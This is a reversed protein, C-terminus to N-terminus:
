RTRGIFERIGEIMRKVDDKSRNFEGPKHAAENRYGGWAEVLKGDNASYLNPNAKRAHGVANNYKILSGDGDIPINHKAVYHRLHTELAGGAIVTAAARHNNEALVLAQDLLESESEVRIAEIISGLRDDKILKSAGKLVSLLKNIAECPDNTNPNSLVRAWSQRIPHGIPFLASLATEAEVAWVRAGQEDSDYIAMVPKITSGTKVLQEYWEQIKELTM